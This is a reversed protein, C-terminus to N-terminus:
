SGGEGRPLRVVRIANADVLPSKTEDVTPIRGTVAGIGRLADVMHEYGEGSDALIAGNAAKYRWRHEGQEDVYMEVFDGSRSDETRDM